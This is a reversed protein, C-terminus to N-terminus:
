QKRPRPGASPGRALLRAAAGAAWAERRMLGGRADPPRGWARGNLVGVGAHRAGASHEATAPATGPSGNLRRLARAGGAHQQPCKQQTMGTKIFGPARCCRVCPGAASRSPSRLLFAAGRVPAGKEEGRGVEGERGGKKGRRGDEEAGGLTRRQRPSGRAPRPKAASTRGPRLPGRVEAAAGEPAARERFARFPGGSAKKSERGPTGPLRGAGPPLRGGGPPGARAGPPARPGRPGPGRRRRKRTGNRRGGPRGAGPGSGRGKGEGRRGGDRRAGERKRRERERARQRARRVNGGGGAAAAARQGRGVSVGRRTLRGGPSGPEPPPARRRTDRTLSRAGRVGRTRAPLNLTTCTLKQQPPPLPPAPPLSFLAPTPPFSNKRGRELFM